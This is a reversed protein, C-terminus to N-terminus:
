APSEPVLDLDIDFSYEPKPVGLRSFKVGLLQDTDDFCRYADDAFALISDPHWGVGTYQLM